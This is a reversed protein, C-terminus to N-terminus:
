DISKEFADPDTLMSKYVEVCQLWRGHDFVVDDRTNSAKPLFGMKLYAKGDEGEFVTCFYTIDNWLNMLKPTPADVDWSAMYYASQCLGTAETCERFEVSYAFDEYKADFYLKGTDDTKVEGTVGAGKLIAGFDAPRRPDFSAAHAQGAMMLAVASLAAALKFKAM